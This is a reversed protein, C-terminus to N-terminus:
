LARTLLNSQLNTDNTKELRVLLEFFVWLLLIRKLISISVSSVCVNLIFTFTDRSV